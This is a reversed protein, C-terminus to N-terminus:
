SEPPLFEAQAKAAQEAIFDATVRVRAINRLDSHLM